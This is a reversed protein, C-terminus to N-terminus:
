PRRLNVNYYVNGTLAYELDPAVASTPRYDHDAVVVAHACPRMAFAWCEWCEFAACCGPGPHSYNWSPWRDIVLTVNTLRVGTVANGPYRGSLFNANQGVGFVNEFTINVVRGARSTATRPMSCLFTLSEHNRNLRHFSVEFDLHKRRQGVLRRIRPRQRQRPRAVPAHRQHLDSYLTFLLSPILLVTTIIMM